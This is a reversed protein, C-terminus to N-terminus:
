RRLYNNVMDADRWSEQSSSLRAKKTECSDRFRRLRTRIGEERRATKEWEIWRQLGAVAQAQATEFVANEILGSEAAALVEVCPLHGANLAALIASEDGGRPFSTPDGGIDMLTQLAEAQNHKAAALTAANLIERDMEKRCERWMVLVSYLTQAHGGQAALEIATPHEGLDFNLETGHDKFLCLCDNRGNLIAHCLPTYGNGDRAAADAGQGLLVRCAEARGEAAAMALKFNLKSKKM